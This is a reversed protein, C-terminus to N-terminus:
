IDPTARMFLREFEAKKVHEYTAGRELWYAAYDDPKPFLNAFLCASSNGYAYDSFAGHGHSMMRVSNAVIHEVDFLDVTRTVSNDPQIEFLSVPPESTEPNVREIRLYEAM